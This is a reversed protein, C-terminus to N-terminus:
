PHLRLQTERRNAEQSIRGPRQPYISETIRGLEWTLQELDHAVGEQRTREAFDQAQRLRRVLQTLELHLIHQQKVTGM